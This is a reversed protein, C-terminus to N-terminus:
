IYVIRGESEAFETEQSARNDHHLYLVIYIISLHTIYVSSDRSNELEVLFEIVDIM